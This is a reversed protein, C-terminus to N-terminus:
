NRGRMETLWALFETRKRMETVSWGKAFLAGTPCVNVCKGCSTCTQSEGWPTAFDTIMHAEFGRGTVSWTHAGEVEDCARVCRTCLVCRNPDFGFLEHSADVKRVPFLYPLSIHDVGLRLAMDQLECHGNSVCVSCTHYGEAFLMEVIMRRYDLLRQSDTQVI